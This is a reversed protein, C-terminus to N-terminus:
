RGTALAKNLVKVCFSAEMTNSVDWSIVKRSYWDMVACLYLYGKRMPLYTIDTSWVQDPHDIKMGRLLYPFKQHSADMVTTKPGPYICKINMLNMLRQVRKRNIREGERNLDERIRRSGYFPYKTHIKDIMQMLNLNYPSENKLNSSYYTSRSIGLSVCKKRISMQQTKKKIM